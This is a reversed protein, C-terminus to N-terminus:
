SLRTVRAGSVWNGGLSEVDATFTKSTGGGEGAATRTDNFLEVKFGPPIRLSSMQDNKLETNPFNISLFEIPKDLTPQVPGYKNGGYRWDKYFWVGDVLEPQSCNGPQSTDQNKNCCMGKASGSGWVKGFACVMEQYRPMTPAQGDGGTDTSGAGLGGGYKIYWFLGGGAAALVSCCVVALVMIIIIGQNGM